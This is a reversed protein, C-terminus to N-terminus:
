GLPCVPGISLFSVPFFPLPSHWNMGPAADIASVPDTGSRRSTPAVSSGKAGEKVGDRVRGLSAGLGSALGDFVRGSM